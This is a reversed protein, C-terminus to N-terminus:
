PQPIQNPFDQSYIETFRDALRGIRVIAADEFKQNAAAAHCADFKEKLELWDECYANYEAEFANLFLAMRHGQDPSSLLRADGPPCMTELVAIGTGLVRFAHRQEFEHNYGQTLLWNNYGWLTRWLYEVLLRIEHRPRTM